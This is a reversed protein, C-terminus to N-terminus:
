LKKEEEEKPEIQCSVTPTNRLLASVSYTHQSIHGVAITVHVCVSVCVVLSFRHVAIGAHRCAESLCSCVYTCVCARVCM